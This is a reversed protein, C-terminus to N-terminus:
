LGCGRDARDSLVDYSKSEIFTQQVMQHLMVKEAYRM